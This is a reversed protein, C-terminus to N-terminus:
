AGKNRRRYEPSVLYEATNAYTVAGAGTPQRRGGGPNVKPRALPQVDNAPNLAGGNATATATATSQGNAAFLTPMMDKLIDVEDELGVLDGDGDIEIQSMDMMRLVRKLTKRRADKDEPLRLGAEALAAQVAGNLKEAAAAENATALATEATEKAERAALLEARVEPPLAALKDADSETPSPAPAPTKAGPTRSKAKPLNAQKRIRAVARAATAARSNAEALQQTLQAVTPQGADTSDTADDDDSDTLNLDMDADDDAPANPDIDPGQTVDDSDDHPAAARTM